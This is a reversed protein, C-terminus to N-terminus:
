LFFAATQESLVQCSRPVAITHEAVFVIESDVIPLIFTHLVNKKWNKFLPDVTCKTNININELNICLHTNFIDASGTDNSKGNEFNKKPSDKAESIRILSTKSYWKRSQEILLMKNGWFSNCVCFDVSMNMLTEASSINVKYM